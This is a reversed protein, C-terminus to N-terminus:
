ENEIVEGTEENIDMPHNEKGNRFTSNDLLLDWARQYLMVQQIPITGRRFYEQFTIGQQQANQIDAYPSLSLMDISRVQALLDDDDSSICDDHTYHYKRSQGKLALYRKDHIFYLYADEFKSFKFSICGKPKDPKDSDYEKFEEKLDDTQLMKSPFIYVHVHERKGGEDDEPKHPVFFWFSIKKANTLEELKLKLFPVTNFSITSIARSTKM